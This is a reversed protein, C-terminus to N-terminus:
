QTDARQKTGDQGDSWSSTDATETHRARKGVAETAGRAYARRYPGARYGPFPPPRLLVPVHEVARSTRAFPRPPSHVRVSHMPTGTQTLADHGVAPARAPTEHFHRPKRRSCGQKPHRGDPICLGVVRLRLHM